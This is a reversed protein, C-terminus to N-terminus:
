RVRGTGKHKQLRELSEKAAIKKMEIMALQRELEKQKKQAGRSEPDIKHLKATVAILAEQHQELASQATQLQRAYQPNEEAADPTYRESATGPMLSRVFIFVAASSMGVPPAALSLLAFAATYDRRGDTMLYVAFGVAATVALWGALLLMINTQSASPLLSFFKMLLFLLPFAGWALAAFRVLNIKQPRMLLFFALVALVSAATHAAFLMLLMGNYRHARAATISNHLKLMEFGSVQAALLYLVAAVAAIGVLVFAYWLYGLKTEPSALKWFGFGLVALAIAFSATAAYGLLPLHLSTLSGVGVAYAFLMIEARLAHQM